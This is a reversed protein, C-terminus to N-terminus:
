TAAVTQGHTSELHYGLVHARFTSGTWTGAVSANTSQTRAKTVERRWTKIQGDIFHPHSEYVNWTTAPLFSVLHEMLPSSLHYKQELNNNSDTAMAWEAQATVRCFSLWLKLHCWKQRETIASEM